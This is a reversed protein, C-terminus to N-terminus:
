INFLGNRDILDFTSGLLKNQLRRIHAEVFDVEAAEPNIARAAELNLACRDFLGELQEYSAGYMSAFDIERLQVKAMDIHCMMEFYDADFREIPCIRDNALFLKLATKLEGEAIAPRFFSSSLFCRALYYHAGADYPNTVLHTKLTDRALAWEQNLCLEEGQKLLDRAPARTCGALLICAIGCCLALRYPSISGAGPM